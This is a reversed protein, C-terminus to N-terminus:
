EHQLLSPFTLGSTPVIGELSKKKERVMFNRSYYQRILLIYKPNNKKSTNMKNFYEHAGSTTTPAWQEWCIM